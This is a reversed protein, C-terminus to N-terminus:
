IEGSQTFGKLTIMFHTLIIIIKLLKIALKRDYFMRKGAPNMKARGVTALIQYFSRPSFVDGRM